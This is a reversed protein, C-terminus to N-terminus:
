KGHIQFFYEWVNRFRQASTKCIQSNHPNKFKMFKLGSGIIHPYILKEWLIGM